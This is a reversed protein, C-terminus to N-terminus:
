LFMIALFFHHTYSVDGYSDLMIFEYQQNIKLHVTAFIHKESEKVNKYGGIPIYAISQGNKTRILWGTEKPFRDLMLDVTVARKDVKDDDNKGDDRDIKDCGFDDPPSESWDCVTKKIWSMQSSIRAYVGPFVEHACGMGWSVVGVQKDLRPLLGKEILPGGSDGQCADENKDQACLMNNTIRGLLSVKKGGIFGNRTRCQNNTMANVTVEKLVESPLKNINDAVGWGMVTLEKNAKPMVPDTNMQLTAKKSWGYLKIIMFDNNFAAGPKNKDVYGPHTVFKEINFREYDEDPDKVNHRGLDVGDFNEWCHAASLIIDDAIM